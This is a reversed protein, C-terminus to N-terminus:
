RNKDLTHKVNNVGRYHYIIKFEGDMSSNDEVIKFGYFYNEPSSLVMDRIMRVKEPGIYRAAIDFYVTCLEQAAKLEADKDNLLDVVHQDSMINFGDFVSHSYSLSYRKKM